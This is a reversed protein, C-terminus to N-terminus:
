VSALSGQMCDDNCWRTEQLTGNSGAVAAAPTASNSEYSSVTGAGESGVGQHLKQLDDRRVIQGM